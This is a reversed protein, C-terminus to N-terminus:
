ELRELVPALDGEAAAVRLRARWVDLRALIDDTEAQRLMREAEAVELVETLGADYRARAQTQLARAAKLRVPTNEAIRQAASLGVRARAVEAAQHQRANEYRAEAARERQEEARRRAGIEPFDLLPFRVALGLAWNSTRPWLASGGGEFSGDLLAGTGRAYVAGLVDLKPRYERAVAERRASAEELVAATAEVQPHMSPETTEARVAGDPEGEILAGGDVEVPDGARGIWEAVWLRAEERRREADILENRARALEARAFSLDVGPRLENAVLAELSTTFAEMRDVTAEAAVVASTMGALSFFADAAALSVDIETM